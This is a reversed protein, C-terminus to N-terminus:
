QKGNISLLKFVAPPLTVVTRAAYGTVNQEVVVLPLHYKMKLAGVSTRPGLQRMNLQYHHNKVRPYLVLLTFSIVRREIASTLFSPQQSNVVYTTIAHM